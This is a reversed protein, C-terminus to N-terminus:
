VNTQEDTEYQSTVVMAPVFTTHVDTMFSGCVEMGSIFVQCIMFSHRQDDERNRSAVM